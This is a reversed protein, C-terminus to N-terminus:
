MSFMKFFFNEKTSLGKGGRLPSFCSKKATERVAVYVIKPDGILINNKEKRKKLTKGEVCLFLTNITMFTLIIM